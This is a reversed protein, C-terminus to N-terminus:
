KKILAQLGGATISGHSLSGCAVGDRIWIAQPSEHRVGLRAEIERSVPREEIVRVIACVPEGGGARSAVFDQFEDHAAASIPCATSHKFILLGGGTSRALLADLDASTAIPIATRTM